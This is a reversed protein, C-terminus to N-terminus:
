VKFTYVQLFSFVKSMKEFVRFSKAKGPDLRMTPIITSVYVSNSVQRDHLKSPTKCKLGPRGDVVVVMASAAAM